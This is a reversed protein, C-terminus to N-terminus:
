KLVRPLIGRVYDDSALDLKPVAETSVMSLEGFFEDEITRRAAEDRGEVRCIIMPQTNSKRILAQGLWRGERDIWKILGGDTTDIAYDKRQFVDIVVDV